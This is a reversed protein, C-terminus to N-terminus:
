AFHILQRLDVTGLGVGKELTRAPNNLPLNMLIRKGGRHEPRANHVVSLRAATLVV